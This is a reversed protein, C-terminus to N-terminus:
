HYSRGEDPVKRIPELTAALAAPDREALAEAVALAEASRADAARADEYVTLRKELAEVDAYIKDMLEALLAKRELEEDAPDPAVVDKRHPKKGFVPAPSKGFGGGTFSADAALPPPEDKPDARTTQPLDDKSATAADAIARQTFAISMARCKWLPM